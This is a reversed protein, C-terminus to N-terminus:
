RDNREKSRSSDASYTLRKRTLLLESTEHVLLAEPEEPCWSRVEDRSRSINDFLINPTPTHFIIGTLSLKLLLIMSKKSARMLMTSSIHHLM